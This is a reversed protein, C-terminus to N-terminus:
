SMKALFQKYIVYHRNLTILPLALGGQSQCFKLIAWKFNESLNVCFNRVSSDVLPDGGAEILVVNTYPDESLRNAVASGGPGSGVM